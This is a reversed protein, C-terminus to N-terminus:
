RYPNAVIQEHLEIYEALIMATAGWIKLKKYRYFPAKIRRSNEHIYENQIMCKPDMLSEININFIEQVEKENRRFVPESNLVGVVPQVYHNSVPIYLPTLTGIVQINTPSIGIEEKTERLATTILDDDHYEYKGGPLSIQGSHEGNYLTRKILVTYFFQEKQYLLILVGAHRTQNNHGMYEEREPPAMKYRASEGPLQAALLNEMRQYYESFKM